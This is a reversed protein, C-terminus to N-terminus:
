HSLSTRLVEHQAVMQDIVAQLAAGDLPGYLDWARVDNYVPTGPAVQEVLWLQEQGFSARGFRGPAAPTVEAAASMLGASEWLEAPSPMAMRSAIEDSPM